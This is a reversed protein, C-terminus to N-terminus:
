GRHGPRRRFSPPHAVAHRCIRAEGRWPYYGLVYFALCSRRPSVLAIVWVRPQRLRPGLRIAEDAPNVHLDFTQQTM